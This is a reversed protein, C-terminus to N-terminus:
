RYLEQGIDITIHFFKLIYTYYLFIKAFIEITIISEIVIEYSIFIEM